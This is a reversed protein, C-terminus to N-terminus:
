GISIFVRRIDKGKAKIMLKANISEPRLRGTQFAKRERYAAAAEADTFPSNKGSLWRDFLAEQERDADPSVNLYRGKM